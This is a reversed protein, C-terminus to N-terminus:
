SGGTTDERAIYEKILVTDRESSRVMRLMYEQYNAVLMITSGAVNILESIMKEKQCKDSHYDM